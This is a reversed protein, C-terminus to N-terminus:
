RLLTFAREALQQTYRNIKQHEPSWGLLFRYFDTWAIAYLDSWAHEVKDALEASHATSIAARLADFYIGLLESEHKALMPEEICSGLFYAVDKIGVGGGVYQFDVAAVATFNENFCFNAVKADGHVFSQYQCANLMEDLKSAAHKLQGDPMANYEDLRTDLHWYTGVSWLGTAPKNLFQAHFAALWQLCVAAEEISLSAARAPFEPNLDEMLIWRSVGSQGSALLKPVRHSEKCLAAHTEYWHTEVQYSHLKRQRSKDTNWGRPHQSKEPPHILKLVALQNPDGEAYILQLQIIGGYGSWLQQLTEGVQVQVAGTLRAIDGLIESPLDSVSL